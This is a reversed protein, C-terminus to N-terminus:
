ACPQLRRPSHTNYQHPTELCLSAGANNAAVRPTVGSPTLMRHADLMGCKIPIDRLAQTLASASPWRVNGLYRLGRTPPNTPLVLRKNGPMFSWGQRLPEPYLHIHRGFTSTPKPLRLYVNPTVSDKPIRQVGEAEALVRGRMSDGVYQRVSGYRVSKMNAMRTINPTTNVRVVKPESGGGVVHSIHLLLSPLCVHLSFGVRRRFERILVNAKYPPHILGMVRRVAPLGEGLSKAHGSRSDRCNDRALVPIM